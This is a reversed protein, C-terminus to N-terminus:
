YVKNNKYYLRLNRFLKFSLIRRYSDKYNYQNKQFYNYIINSFNSNISIEDIPKLYYLYKHIFKNSLNYNNLLIIHLNLNKNNLNNIIFEETLNPNYNIFHLNINFKNINLFNLSIQKHKSLIIWNWKKLPFLRIIKELISENYNM